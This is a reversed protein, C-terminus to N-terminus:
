TGGEQDSMLFVGAPVSIGRGGLRRSNEPRQGPLRKMAQAWGGTAGAQGRWQTREFIRCLGEHYNPLIVRATLGFGDVFVGYGRLGDQCGKPTGPGDGDKLVGCAQALAEGLMTRNGGRFLEVPVSLIHSLMGEANSGVHHRAETRSSSLAAALEARTEGDALEDYRALDAMALLTGYLDAGRQQHRQQVLDHRYAALTEDWRHWQDLIRRRLQRGIASWRDRDLAPAKAEPPLRDLELIVFRSQDQGLLPPIIIASFLFASQALFESPTNANSGRGVKGGTAAQRALKIMQQMRNSGPENEGEDILAPINSQGLSQWVYAASGDSVKLCADEGGIVLEVLDLLTTKGMQADGTLWILPRFRLAGAVMAGCVWGLMLLAAMRHGGPERDTPQGAEDREALWNWGDLTTMLTEAAERGAPDGAPRPLAAHGAYLHGGHFGPMRWDGDWWVGDGAHLVLRGAADRWGGTGRVKKRPDFYGKDSAAKMLTESVMDAKWGTQEGTQEKFKPFNTWLWDLRAQHLMRMGAANHDRAALEHYEYNPLLYCYKGERIGLPTVPSDKPLPKVPQKKLKWKPAEDAPDDAGPPAPPRPPARDSGGDAAPTAPPAAKRRPAIMADIEDADYGIARGFAHAKADGQRLAIERLQKQDRKKQARDQEEQAADAAPAAAAAADAAKAARAAEFAAAIPSLDPSSTM